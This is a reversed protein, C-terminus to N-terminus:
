FSAGDCRQAGRRLPCSSQGKRILFQELHTACWPCIDQTASTNEGRTPSEADWRAYMAGSVLSRGCHWDGPWNRQESRCSASTRHRQPVTTSTVREDQAAPSRPRRPPSRRRTPSGASNPGDGCWRSTMMDRPEDVHEDEADTDEKKRCGRAGGRRRTGGEREQADLARLLTEKLEDGSGRSGEQEEESREDLSGENQTKLAGCGRAGGRRRTGGRGRRLM